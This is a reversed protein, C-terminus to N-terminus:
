IGISFYTFIWPLQLIEQVVLILCKNKPLGALHTLKYKVYTVSLGFFATGNIVISILLTNGFDCRTRCRKCKRNSTESGTTLSNGASGHARQESRCWYNLLPGAWPFAILFQCCACGPPLIQIRIPISVWLAYIVRVLLVHGGYLCNLQWRYLVTGGSTPPASPPTIAFEMGRVRTRFWESHSGNIHGCNCLIIVCGFSPTFLWHFDLFSLTGGQSFGTDVPVPVVRRIHLTKPEVKKILYLM